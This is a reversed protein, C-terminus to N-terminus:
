VPSEGTKLFRSKRKISLQRIQGCLIQDERLRQTLSKSRWTWNHPGMTGPINIRDQTPNANLHLPSLALFDQLPIICFLSDSKVLRKLVQYAVDPYRAPDQIRIGTQERYFKRDFDSEEWHGLLTSSDHCSSTCVSLFPYSKTYPQNHEHWERAWREIKLSLINLSELVEPVCAPIAGLDEACVLMDTAEKLVALLKNGNVKWLDNQAIEYQGIVNRLANQEHVPLSYFVPSQYWYWYPIYEDSNQSALFVRNRLVRLLSEKLEPSESLSYISHEGVLDPNLKYRQNEFPQFYSKIHNSNLSLSELWQREYSPTKLYQITTLPIGAQVLDSTQIPRQPQFAGSIGTHDHASISWIRFFGLVHDIRFAHYFKSSQKLRDKWWSYNDRKLTKWDYCPFGWNQGTYSFMDPPAGARLNRNFYRRESWVDASDENILIPIDGKLRIGNQELSAIAELFQDEALKQVYCHFLTQDYYRAWLSDIQAHGPKQYKPWTTWSQEHYVEKLHCYVSYTKVWSNNNIWNHLSKDKKIADRHTTYILRLIKKKFRIVEPYQVRNPTNLKQAAQRIDHLYAEAGPVNQLRIYMPHLAFASRAGYPSSEEGSDNVPLLQILDLGCDKAWLGFEKLDAFEGCGCSEISNLSFLPVAVGTQYHTLNQYKM